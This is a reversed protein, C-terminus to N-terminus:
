GSPSSESDINEHDQSSSEKSDAHHSEPLQDPPNQIETAVEDAIDSSDHPKDSTHLNDNEVEANTVIVDKTAVIPELTSTTETSTEEETIVSPTTQQVLELATDTQDNSLTITTMGTEEDILGAEQAEDDRQQNQPQQPQEPRTTAAQLCWTNEQLYIELQTKRDEMIQVRRKMREINALMAKHSETITALAHQLNQVKVWEDEDPSQKQPQEIDNTSKDKAAAQNQNQNQYKALWKRYRFIRTEVFQEKQEFESIQQYIQVLEADLLELEEQEAPTDELFEALDHRREPELRQTQFELRRQSQKRFKKWITSIM